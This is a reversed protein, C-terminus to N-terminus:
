YGTRGASAREREGERERERVKLLYPTCTAIADATADETTAGTAKPAAEGAAVAERSEAETFAKEPRLAAVRKEEVAWCSLETRLPLRTCQM